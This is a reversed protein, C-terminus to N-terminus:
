FDQRELNAAGAYLLATALGLSLLLGGWPLNGSQFYSEASMSGFLNFFGLYPALLALIFALLCTLLLPRWLDDFITSLLSALAFYVSSGLFLCIGYVLGDRIPFSEGVSPALLTVLVSPLMVMIMLEILGTAVRTGFVAARTVPLSLIFLPGRNSGSFLQGTTGLLAGFLIILQLLNNAYIESWAYGRFTSSLQVAEEVARGIRSDLNGTNLQPVLELLSPYILVSSIVSLTLLGLGIVFRWRTEVLTWQWLANNM